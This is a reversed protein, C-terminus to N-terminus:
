KEASSPPTKEYVPWGLLGKTLNVNIKRGIRTKVYERVPIERKKTSGDEFRLTIFYVNYTEGSAVYRRGSRRTRSREETFKAAITAKQPRSHAKDRGVYNIILLGSAICLIACLFSIPAALWRNSSKVFVLAAIILAPAAAIGAILIPSVFTHGYIYLAIGSLAILILSAIITIITQRTTM